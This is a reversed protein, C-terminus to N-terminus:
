TRRDLVVGYTEIDREVRERGYVEEIKYDLVKNAKEYLEYDLNLLNEKVFKIQGENLYFNSNKDALLKEYKEDPDEDPALFQKYFPIIDQEWDACIEYKLLVLSEEIRNLVMVLNFDGRKEQKDDDKGFIDELPLNNFDFYQSNNARFHWPKSELKLFNSEEKGPM